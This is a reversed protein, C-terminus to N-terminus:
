ATAYTGKTEPGLLREINEHALLNKTEMPTDLLQLKLTAAGPIKLPMGTGFVLRRPGLRELLAPITRQLVTAMRSFEFHIRADALAPDLVFPSNEVGIAELVVIDADPCARALDAVDALRVEATTDMWHQQRRDELRLPIAVHMGYENASRVLDLCHTSTLSFRHHSPFLRLGRMDWEDRCQRLDRQWGPWAPNLTACPVLRDRHPRIWQALEQNGGHADTYFVGNLSSVLARDIQHRDMLRLLGDVTTNPVARFPYHGLWANCDFLRVGV